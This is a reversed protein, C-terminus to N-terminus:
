EVPVVSIRYGKQVPVEVTAILGQGCNRCIRRRNRKGGSDWTTQVPHPGKCGCVPCSWPDSGAAALWEQPTKIVTKKDAQKWPETMRRGEGGGEM